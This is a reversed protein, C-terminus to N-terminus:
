LNERCFIHGCSVSCEPSWAPEYKGNTPNYILTLQETTNLELHGWPTNMPNQLCSYQLPNGNKEGPSRRSGPILGLDGANCTSEKGDSSGPFGMCNLQQILDSTNTGVQKHRGNNKHLKILYYRFWYFLIPMINFNIIKFLWYLCLVKFFFTPLVLM